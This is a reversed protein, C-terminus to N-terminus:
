SAARQRAHVHAILDTLRQEDEKELRTGPTLGETSEVVYDVVALGAVLEARARAPLIPSEPEAIAVLLVRGAGSSEGVRGAQEGPAISGSGKIGRLRAAPEAAKVEAAGTGEGGRAAEDGRAIKGAGASEGARAAQEALATGAEARGGGQEAQETLASGAEVSEGVRAAQEALAVGGASEGGRAAHEAPGAGGAGKIERLRAAHAALLPDFYGSVVIAGAAALRVAEEFPVIKTRTDM